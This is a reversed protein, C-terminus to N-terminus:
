IHWYKKEAEKRAQTAERLTNYRGLSIKKYNVKIEACWKGRSKDCWVGTVGSTNNPRIHTGNRLNAANTCIRLNCRRNDLTNGDIHDVYEGSKPKMIWRHLEVLKNGPLRKQFYILGNRKKVVCWKMSNLTKMRKYDTDDVITVHSGHTKSSFKIVKM